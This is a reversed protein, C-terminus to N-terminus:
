EPRLDDPSVLVMIAPGPVPCPVAMELFHFCRGMAFFPPDPEPEYYGSMGGPHIEGEYRRVDTGVIIGPKPTELAVRRFRVHAIQARARSLSTTHDDSVRPAPDYNEPADPWPYPEGPWDDWPFRAHDDGVWYRGKWARPQAYHIGAADSVLRAAHSVAVVRDGFTYTM